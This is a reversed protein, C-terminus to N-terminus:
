VGGVRFGNTFPSASYGYGQGAYPNYLQSAQDSSMTSGASSLGGLGGMATMPNGTLMGAGMMVGGMIQGFRNPSASETVTGSQGMAGIPQVMGRQWELAQMPATREATAAADRAAGVRGLVDSNWLRAQDLAPAMAAGQYGANHLIGAAQMQNQRERNYQDMLVTNSNRSLADGLAAAHSVGGGYRGAGSFQGNVRNAIQDNSARLVDAVYPNSLMEGGATSSLAGLGTRYGAGSGEVVPRMATEGASPGSRAASEAMSWSDQTDQGRVPRFADINGGLEQARGLINTLAGQAPKWPGTETTKTTSSKGM